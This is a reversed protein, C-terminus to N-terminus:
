LEFMKRDLLGAVKKVPAKGKGFNGSFMMNYRDISSLLMKAETVPVIIGVSSETRNYKMVDKIYLTSKSKQWGTFSASILLLPGDMNDHVQIMQPVDHRDPEQNFPVDKTYIKGEAYMILSVYEKDSIDYTEGIIYYIPSEKENRDARNSYM